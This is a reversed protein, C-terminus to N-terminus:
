PGDKTMRVQKVTLGSEASLREKVQKSPHQDKAYVAELKERQSASFPRWKKGSHQDPWVLEAANDESPTARASRKETAVRLALTRTLSVPHCSVTRSMPHPLYAILSLPM